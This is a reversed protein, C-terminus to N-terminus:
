LLFARDGEAKELPFFGNKIAILTRLYSEQRKRLLMDFM